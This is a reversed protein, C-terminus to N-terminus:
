EGGAGRRSPVERPWHLRAVLGGGDRPELWLLGGHAQALNRAIALGLGTGGFDRGRSPDGRVFPEFMRELDADSLGPGRDAVSIRVVDENVAALVEACGGYRLANDILNQLLRAMANPAARVSPLNTSEYRCDHGLDVMQEVVNEILADLDIQVMSEHLSESGAFALGENVLAAMADLDAQLRSHLDTNGLSAIRLQLRTIPTKLDHTVAALIRTRAQLQRLVEQRLQNLSRILDQVEPPGVEQLPAGSLDRTMARAAAAARALPHTTLSVAFWAVVAVSATVALVYALAALASPATRPLGQAFVVLLDTKADLPIRLALLGQWRVAHVPGVALESASRRALELLHSDDQALPVAELRDLLQWRYTARDLTSALAAPGAAAYRSLQAHVHGIDKAILDNALYRAEFGRSWGVAVFSLMQVCLLAILLVLFVRQRLSLPLLAKTVRTM